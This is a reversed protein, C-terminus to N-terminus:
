AANRHGYPPGRPRVRPPCGGALGRRSIENMFEIQNQWFSLPFRGPVELAARGDNWFQMANDGISGQALAPGNFICDRHLSGHNHLAGSGHLRRIPLTEIASTFKIAANFICDFLLYDSNNDCPV